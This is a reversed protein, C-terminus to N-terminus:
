TYTFAADVYGGYPRGGGCVVPNGLYGTTEEGQFGAWLPMGAAIWTATDTAGLHTLVDYEVDYVAGGNNEIFTGTSDLGRGDGLSPVGFYSGFASDQAARMYHRSDANGYGDSETQSLVRIVVTCRTISSITAGVFPEQAMSLKFHRSFIAGNTYEDLTTFSAWADEDASATSFSGTTPSNYGTGGGSYLIAANTFDITTDLSVSASTGNFDAWLTIEGSAPANGLSYYESLSIPNSGGYETQVASLSLPKSTPIAM